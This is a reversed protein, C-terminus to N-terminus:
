SRSAAVFSARVIANLLRSFRSRYVRSMRERGLPEKITSFGQPPIQIPCAYTIVNRQHLYVNHQISGNEYKSGLASHSLWCCSLIIGLSKRWRSVYHLVKNHALQFPM